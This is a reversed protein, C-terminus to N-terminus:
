VKGILIKLEKVVDDVYKEEVSGMAFNNRGGGKGKFKSLVKNLLEAANIKLDESSNFLVMARGDEKNVFFVVTKEKLLAASKEILQKKEVEEVVKSIFNINNIEEKDYSDLLNYSIERFKEKYNESEEQLRKITSLIADTDTGLLSAAERTIKALDYLSKKVNTKYRIEWSGKVFNFKTILLNGVFGTTKAHIGTCASWDFDDVEVVRVFEGKIREPKIRLKGLQIAEEKTYKKEIMPKDEEIIKNVIEEAKFLGEWTLKETNIFLSSENEDLDIKKLKVDGFIKELAKFLVHEGTHMRVLKIRRDEDIKLTVSDKEKLTGKFKVEHIIKDNERYVNVVEGDFSDTKIIGLDCPQGGGGPYFITDDLEILLFGDKNEVSKVTAKDEFLFTEYYKNMSM